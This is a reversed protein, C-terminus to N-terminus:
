AGSTMDPLWGHFSFFRGGTIIEIDTTGSKSM